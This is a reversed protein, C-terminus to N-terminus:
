MKEVVNIGLLSLGLKVSRAVLDCLLLRSDRQAPTEAKLVPCSEFFESFAGALSFLYTTLLHPEYDVLVDDIAEAYRLLCLALAREKEHQLLIKADSARLSEIDVNGKAFISRVRAYSYQMYTATNGKMAVMKDESYVYDSTRNQSLDAYKIAAHGVVNAVNRREDEGLKAGSKKADDNECVVGYARDVASDLLRELGVTVGARTKYPKGSTDLVTGFKIHRLDVDDYGWRKAAAFLKDFHEGQRFDVVYLIVDPSWKEMRYQITALDTTAYLFAGDKKRIIMPADHSELFVCIAGDSETALGKSEFSEVVGDLRDHYFSEGLEVDFKVDLRDYVRQIENRCKPLFENWLKLNERTAPTSNRPKM